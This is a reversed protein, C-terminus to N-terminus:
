SSLVHSSSSSTSGAFTLSNSDRCTRGSTLCTTIHRHTQRVGRTVRLSKIKAIITHIQKPEQIVEERSAREGQCVEDADEDASARFETKSHTVHLFSPHPSTIRPTRRDKPVLLMSHLLSPTSSQLTKGLRQKSDRAGETTKTKYDGM